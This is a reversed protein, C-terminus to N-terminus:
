EEDEEEESLVEFHTADFTYAASAMRGSSPQINLRFGDDDCDGPAPPMASNFVMLGVHDFGTTDVTGSQGLPIVQVEGNGVGLAFMEIQGPSNLTVTYTGDLDFNFYNAGLQELGGKSAWDGTEALTDRLAVTTRFLPALDYDRAFNQARWREIVEPITAGDEALAASVTEFGDLEVANEWFRRIMDNGHVDAISQLLTWQSYNFGSESTTWCNEPSRYDRRVYDTADQDSGVTAVEMWSATSEYLWGLGEEADYGYQVIHNFEHTATARMLSHASAEKGLGRFDNEILFIARSAAMERVDTTNPNDFVSEVPYAVGLSGGADAIFVNYMGEDDRIPEAWGMQRIQIDLIEQLAVGVSEAYERSSADDGEVTYHIVFDDTTVTEVEGSLTIVRERLEQLIDVVEADVLSIVLEFDGSSPSGSYRTMELTYRGTEEVTYAIASNLSGDGRDDNMAVPFGDPGNLRIFTDLDGSLADAYAYITQGAELPLPYEIVPRENTIQGSFEAIRQGEISTFDFPVEANPDTAISVVLDGTEDGGYTGIEVTYRGPESVQFVVHSNLTGDGRDDNQSLIMGTPGTLSMTTDLGSTLAYTSAVLIDEAQLDVPFSLTPDPDGIRTIVETLVNASSSLGFDVGDGIELEFSGTSGGYGTISATYTGTQSAQFVVRSQLSGPGMDDNQDILRGDPGTVALITDFNEDSSTTLTVISGAELEIPFDVQPRQATVEGALGGDAGEQACAVAVSCAAVMTGIVFRM